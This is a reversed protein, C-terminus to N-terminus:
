GAFYSVIFGFRVLDLAWCVISFKSLTLIIERGFQRKVLLLMRYSYRTDRM